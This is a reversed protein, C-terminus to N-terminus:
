DFFQKKMWVVIAFYLMVVSISTSKSAIFVSLSFTKKKEQVNKVNNKIGFHPLTLSLTLPKPSIDIHLSLSFLSRCFFIYLTFALLSFSTHPPFFLSIFEPKNIVCVDRTRENNIRRFPLFISQPAFDNSKYV